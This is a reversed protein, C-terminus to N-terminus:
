SKPYRGPGKKKEPLSKMSKGHMKSVVEQAFKKDGPANGELVAHAWRVQARSDPM